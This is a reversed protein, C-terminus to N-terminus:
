FLFRNLFDCFCDSFRIYSQSTSLSRALIPLSQWVFFFSVSGSLSNGCGAALRLFGFAFPLSFSRNEHLEFPLKNVRSRRSLASRVFQGRRFSRREYDARRVWIKRQVQPDPEFKRKTYSEFTDNMEHWFPQGQHGLSLHRWCWPWRKSVPFCNVSEIYRSVGFIKFNQRRDFQSLPRKFFFYFYLDNPWPRSHVRRVYSLTRTQGNTLALLRLFWIYDRLQDM